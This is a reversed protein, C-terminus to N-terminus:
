AGEIARIAANRGKNFCDACHREHPLPELTRAAAIRARLAALEAAADERAEPAAPEADGNRKRTSRTLGREPTELDNPTLGM